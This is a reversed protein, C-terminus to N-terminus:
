LAEDDLWVAKASFLLAHALTGTRRQLTIFLLICAM